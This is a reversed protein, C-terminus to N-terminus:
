EVVDSGAPGFLYLTDLVATPDASWDMAAMQARSRRGTRWRLADFRTTRLSIGPKESPQTRYEADEVVVRLPVPTELRTLVQHSSYRVAESDRAGPRGLAARIDHEHSTIDGVPAILGTAEAMRCLERGAHAWANLMAAADHDAFRSVHEATQADTPAGALAGSAWDQAVALLHAVVDRVSWGPCAPVATSWVVDDCGGILAVIRERTMQYLDAVAPPETILM